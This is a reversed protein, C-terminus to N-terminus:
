PHATTQAPRHQALRLSLELANEAKAEDNRGEAALVRSLLQHYGVGQFDMSIAIRAYSEAEVFNNASLDLLALQSAAAARVRMPLGVEVPHGPPPETLEMVKLYSPRAQDFQDHSYLIEARALWLKMAKPRVRLGDDLVRLAKPLDGEQDYMGALQLQAKPHSPSIELVRTWLARDCDWYGMEHWTLCSWLAVISLAIVLRLKAPVTGLYLVAWAVLACFAYSAIYLYRDHQLVMPAVIVPPALAIAFWVMLFAAVPSRQRNWQWLAAALLLLLALAPLVFGRLTPSELTNAAYEVSLRWPLVLHGIYWWISYPATWLNALTFTPHIYEVAPGAPKIVQHRIAMYAIWVVAYPLLIRPVNRSVNHSVNHSVVRAGTPLTRSTPAERPAILWLYVAILIPIVVMTEKTFMACAFLFVSGALWRSSEGQRWKLFAILTAFFFVGGLGDVCSSGIWAVSEVKSPHLGFLVATLLALRNDRFLLCGFVYALVVVTLHLFIAGLHLWGPAGGSYHLLLLGWTSALPRYYVSHATGDSGFIDHAFFKPVESLKGTWQSIVNDDYVPAFGIARVYLGLLLLLAIRILWRETLLASAIRSWRSVPASRLVADAAALQDPLSQISM